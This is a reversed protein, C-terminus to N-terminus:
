NAAITLDPVLNKLVLIDGVADCDPTALTLDTIYVEGGFSAITEGLLERACTTPTVTAEVIMDVKAAPDAPYTYIEALMPTDVMSDGLINLYGGVVPAGDAPTGPDAASIHGPAGYSAGNELANIQFADDAMWQVGFRRLSAVEPMQLSAQTMTKDAFLVSVEADAVLAPLSVFLSGTASTKATVALGAHRLVVRESSHCPAVLTLGLQAQPEAILEFSIACSATAAPTAPAVKPAIPISLQKASPSLVPAVDTLAATKVAPAAPAPLAVPVPPVVSEPGAAVQEIQSPLPEQAAIAKNKNMTQVLHGAALAVSLVAVGRALRRKMEM